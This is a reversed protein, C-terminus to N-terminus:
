LSTRNYYTQGYTHYLFDLVNEHHSCATKLNIEHPANNM